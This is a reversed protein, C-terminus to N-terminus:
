HRAIDERTEKFCLHGVQDHGGDPDKRVHEEGEAFVVSFVIVFVKRQPRFCSTHSETALQAPWLGPIGSVVAEDVVLEFTM